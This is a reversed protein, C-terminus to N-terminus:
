LAASLCPRPHPDTPVLCPLVLWPHWLLKQVYEDLSITLWVKVWCTQLPSWSGSSITVRRCDHRQVFTCCLWRYFYFMEDCGLYWMMNIACLSKKVWDSTQAISQVNRLLWSLLFVALTINIPLCLCLLEQNGEQNSLYPRISDKLLRRQHPGLSSATFETM